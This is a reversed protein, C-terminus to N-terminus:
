KEGSQDGMLAFSSGSSAEHSNNKAGRSVLFCLLFLIDNVHV